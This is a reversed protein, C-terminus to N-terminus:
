WPCQDEVEAITFNCVFTEMMHRDNNYAVAFVHLSQARGVGPEPWRKIRRSGANRSSVLLFPVDAVYSGAKWAVDKQRDIGQRWKQPCIM